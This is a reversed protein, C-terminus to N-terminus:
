RRPERREEVGRASGRVRLTLTSREQTVVVTLGSRWEHLVLVGVDLDLLVNPSAGHVMLSPRPLNSPKAGRRVPGVREDRAIYREFERFTFLSM